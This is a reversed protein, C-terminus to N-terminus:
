NIKKLLEEPDKDAYVKPTGNGAFVILIHHGNITSVSRRKEKKGVTEVTLGSAGEESQYRSDIKGDTKKEHKRESIIVLNPKGGKIADYLEESYGSELGHHPAVLISLGREELISRLSPQDSTKEHWDPHEDQAESDFVTYRKELGDDEDLIHTMGEPTMDGPVLLSHDGHRFYFVMSTANGYKNDDAEHLDECAPPRVYYVGYELNPITRKSDFQITQLPPQRSKYLGKYTDILDDTGEPNEIRDWNVEEGETKDNPCTLLTPYLKGSELETCQTIHDSHPHSLVAQAIKKGDKEPYPDLKSIFQKKVFDAPDFDERKGMDVIFGQNLGSRVFAANGRGVSFIWVHTTLSSSWGM